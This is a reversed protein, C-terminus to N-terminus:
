QSCICTQSKVWAMSRDWCSKMTKLLSHRNQFCSNCVASPINDSSTLRFFFVCKCESLQQGNEPCIQPLRIMQMGIWDDVRARCTCCHASNMNVNAVSDISEQWTLNTHRGYDYVLNYFNSYVTGCPFVHCSQEWCFPNITIFYPFVHASLPDFFPYESFACSSRFDIFKFQLRSATTCNASKFLVSTKRPM